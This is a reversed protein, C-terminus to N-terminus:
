QANKMFEIWIPLAARAGTEKVGLPKNNDRGVWVGVVLREDFGVFWADTFDNTTGTKGYVTRKLEKARMATGSEIVERLFGRMGDVTEPPLVQKTLPIVDELQIGDRSLVRDYSFPELRKGTAFVSYSATLDLPTVDSAGLATPLYPQLKSRYGCKQAFEIINDIGLNNALRVTAVNLSLALAKRLTVEGRFEGDYNRPSWVSGQRGGPFSIPADLITDEPKMGNELAAAYVFPKFASGSQRMAQTARNFQTDWFDAGGVMARIQGTRVDLAILAVQVGKKVRKEMASIGHKVAAEAHKQLSLDVTAYIKMGSIYIKDGYKAELQQRLFEVFYPAEYRRSFRKAPLPERNASDHEAKTIFGIDLMSNLVLTRRFKAKEPSRFPSFQSPAKPLGAVMAAEGLTLQGVSKGFYAQAAAEIGYAQAGFYAQNLYMGLIEDKTYRREIQLSILAEKIKRAISKEPKLFLMKTLQQTITSGGEVIKRAMIDKYLARLIGIIDVGPHLYFRQDEIAVIAKKVRDPIEYHPVFNRRELYFEALVKNDASYVLTSEIPRYTELIRIEPLDALTWYAFGGGAGLVLGLFALILLTKWNSFFSM